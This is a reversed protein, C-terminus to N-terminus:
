SMRLGRPCMARGGNSFLRPNQMEEAIKRERKNAMKAREQLRLEDIARMRGHIDTESTSTDTAAHRM